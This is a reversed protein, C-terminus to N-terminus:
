KKMLVIIEEGESVGSIIEIDMSGELGTEIEKEEVIGDKQLVRVYFSGDDRELVARSPMMLVDERGGTIIDTDGTMGIKLNEMSGTFDLKIRYKPVGDKITAAPDIEAVSIGFPDGPFADLEVQSDQELEVKPIDIESVFMEIRYPSEGLMTIAADQQFATSLLEGTKINVKTITGSTPANMITDNYDARTRALDANAQRVRAGAADIDTQRAGARKLNLQAEQTRLSTEYTLIDAKARSISSKENEIKTDYGASADQLSKKASDISNLASQVNSRETAIDEKRAERESRTFSSTPPMNVILYYLSDLVDYAQSIVGRAHDLYLKASEADSVSMGESTLDRGQDSINKRKTRMIAEEGSYNHILSDQVDRDDLVDDLVGLSNSAVTYKQSVTSKATSVEGSLAIEAERGLVELKDESTRLTERASELAARKNEVEAEAIAIDEPRTGEELERLDAQAAQLNALASNVNALLEGARLSALRDGAEIKDGEKVLVEAVVGSMPFQLNLDRESIVTGVAEVTQTIDGRIVMATIYEPEPEATVKLYGYTLTLFVLAVVTLKGWHNRLITRISEPIMNWLKKVFGKEAIKELHPHSHHHTEKHKKAHEVKKKTM